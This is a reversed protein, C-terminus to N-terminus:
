GSTYWTGLLRAAYDVEADDSGSASNSCGAFLSLAAILMM